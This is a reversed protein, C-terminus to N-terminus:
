LWKGMFLLDIFKNNVYFGNTITGELKFGFKEYLHIASLNDARVELEMKLKRASKADEIIRNLLITGLGLNNFKKLVSMGLAVRHEVRKLNRNRIGITGIIEGDILAVVLHEHTSQIVRRIFKREDNVSFTYEDPERMLNETETNVIEFFDLLLVADSVKVDRLEVIRGDKLTYEM